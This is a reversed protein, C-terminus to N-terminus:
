SSVGGVLVLMGTSGQQWRRHCGLRRHFDLIRRRCHCHCDVTYGECRAIEEPIPAVTETSMTLKKYRTYPNECMRNSMQYRKQRQLLFIGPIFDPAKASIEQLIDAYQKRAGAGIITSPRYQKKLALM